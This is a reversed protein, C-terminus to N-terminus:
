LYMAIYLGGNVHIVEGTIFSAARSCLFGIVNAVEDPQGLRKLLTQEITEEGHRALLDRIMPTAIIGPSVANVRTKPGLERALARTLSVVGGKSAGYHAHQFTGRHAAMSTLMVIASDERLMSIARRCLYFVGDLNISLTQRWQEDTMTDIAQELYLGAAPVLYDIGGFRSQAADVARQADDPNAADMSQVVVRQTAEAGLEHAYNELERQNLDTLVLNAGGAYFLAAVSRGIGGNAGTLLLTKGQFDTM